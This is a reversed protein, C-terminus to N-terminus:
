HKSIKYEIIDTFKEVDARIAKYVAEGIAREYSGPETTKEVLSCITFPIQRIVKLEDPHMM